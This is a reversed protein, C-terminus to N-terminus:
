LTRNKLHSFLSDREKKGEMGQSVGSFPAYFERLLAMHDIMESFAYVEGRCQEQCTQSHAELDLAFRPLAWDPLLVFHWDSNPHAKQGAAM